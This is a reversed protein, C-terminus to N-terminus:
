EAGLLEDACKAAEAQAYASDHTYGAHYYGAVWAAEILERQSKENDVAERLAQMAEITTM